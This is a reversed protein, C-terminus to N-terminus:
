PSYWEMEPYIRGMRERESGEEGSDRLQVRRDSDSEERRGYVSSEVDVRWWLVAYMKVVVSFYLDNLVYGSKRACVLVLRSSKDYTRKRIFRM